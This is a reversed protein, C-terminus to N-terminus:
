RSFDRRWELMISSVRKDKQYFKTNLVGDYPKFELSPNCHQVIIQDIDVYSLLSSIISGVNDPRAFNIIIVSIM